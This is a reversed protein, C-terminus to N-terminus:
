SISFLLYQLLHPSVPISTCQQHSYLINCCLFPSFTPFCLALIHTAQMLWLRSDLFATTYFAFISNLIYFNVFTVVLMLITHTARTEPPCKHYGTPTHIYQVRKHHRHLLLVMYGSSWIMLGIFMADSTSWLIVIDAFPSSSSCFWKGQNDTENGMYQPGTVTVSVFINMLVRLMWCSWHKPARRGLMTWDVGKPILTFSPYTSLVCTSCRTTSHAVRQIYYVLKCGLSSLSNRSVSAAVTHPIGSSLLVLFDAVAMHTPRQKRGLLIPSINHFFLIVSALSGVAIQNATRLVDKQFSMSLAESRGSASLL